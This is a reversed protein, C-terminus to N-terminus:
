GAADDPRFRFEVCNFAVRPWGDDEPRERVGASFVEDVSTLRGQLASAEDDVRGRFAQEDPAWAFAWWTGPGHGAYPSGPALELGISAGWLVRPAGRAFVDAWEALEHDDPFSRRTRELVESARELDGTEWLWSLLVTGHGPVDPDREFADTLLRTACREDGARAALRGALHQQDSYLAFGAPAAEQGRALLAAADEYRQLCFMLHAVRTLVEPDEPAHHVADQAIRGAREPDAEALAGALRALRSPDDGALRLAWAVSGGVSRAVRDLADDFARDRIGRM